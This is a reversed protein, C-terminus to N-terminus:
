RRPIVDVMVTETIGEFEYTVPYTSAVTTDPAGSVTIRGSSFPVPTGDYDTVSVFNMEPTWKGGQAVETDKVHLSLQSVTVPHTITNAQLAQPWEYEDASLTGSMAIKTGSSVTGKVKVKFTITVEQGVSVVGDTAGTSQAVLGAILPCQGNVDNVAQGNLTTSNPVYVM